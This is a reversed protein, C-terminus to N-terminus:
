EGNDCSKLIPPIRLRHLEIFASGEREGGRKKGRSNKEKRDVMTGWGISPLPYFLRRNRSHEPMSRISIKKGRNEFSMSRFIENRFRTELTLLFKCLTFRGPSDIIFRVKVSKVKVRFERTIFSSSSEM